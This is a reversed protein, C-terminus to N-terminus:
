YPSLVNTFPFHCKPWRVVGNLTFTLDYGLADNGCKGDSFFRTRSCSVWSAATVNAPYRARLLTYAFCEATQGIMVQNQMELQPLELALRPAAAAAINGAQLQAAQAFEQLMQQPQLRALYDLHAQELQVGGEVDVHSVGGSRSQLNSSASSLQLPTM